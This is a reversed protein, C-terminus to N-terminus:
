YAKIDVINLIPNKHGTWKHASSAVQISNNAM